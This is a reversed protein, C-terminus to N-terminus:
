DLTGQLSDVSFFERHQIHKDIADGPIYEQWYRQKKIVVSAFIGVKQVVILAKLVNFRRELVIVKGIGFFIQLM